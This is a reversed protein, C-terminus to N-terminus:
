YQELKAIQIDSYGISKLFARAEDKTMGGMMEAGIDSMKLTKIAIQKQHYQFVNLEENLSLFKDFMSPKGLLFLMFGYAIKERQGDTYSQFLPSQNIINKAWLKFKEKGNEADDFFMHSDRNYERQRGLLFALVESKNLTPEQPKIDNPNVDTENMNKFTKALNYRKTGPECTPGGFKDGTCVGKTGRKEIDKDADQIWNEENLQKRIIGSIHARLEKETM